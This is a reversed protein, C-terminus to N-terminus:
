AFCLSRKKNKLYVLVDKNVNRNTTRTIKSQICHLHSIIPNMSLHVHLDTERPIPKDLPLFFFYLFM